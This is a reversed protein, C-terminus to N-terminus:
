EEPCRFPSVASEDIDSFEDWDQNVNYADAPTGQSSRSSTTESITWTVPGGRIEALPGINIAQNIEDLEALGLLTPATKDAPFRYPLMSRVRLTYLEPAHAWIGVGGNLSENLLSRTDNLAGRDQATYEVFGDAYGIRGRGWHWYDAILNPGPVPVAVTLWGRAVNGLTLPVKPVLDEQNFLRLKQDNNRSEAYEVNGERPQGLTWVKQAGYEYLLGAVAGGLSHGAAIWPESVSASIRGWVIPTLAAFYTSVRGPWPPASILGSASVEALLESNTTTGRVSVMDGGPLHYIDTRPVLLAALGSIEEFRERGALTIGALALASQMLDDRDYYILRQMTCHWYNVLVNFDGAPDFDFPDIDPM